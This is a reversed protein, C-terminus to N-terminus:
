FVSGIFFPFYPFNGRGWKTTTERIFFCDFFTLPIQSLGGGSNQCFEWMKGNKKIPLMQFVNGNRRLMQGMQGLHGMMGMRGYGGGMAEQMRRVGYGGIGGTLTTRCRQNDNPPVCTQDSPGGSCTDHYVINLLFLVAFLLRM